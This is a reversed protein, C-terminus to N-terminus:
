EQLRGIPRRNAGDTNTLDDGLDLRAEVAFNELKRVIEPYQDIVNYREGPDRRLDYLGLEAQGQKYPGPWGDNGPLVDEYSRHEHPFVLKWDGIRVAELSNKRYYYLLNDRPNAHPDGKLLSLISVGDIKHGPLDTSTIEALTPLIDITSAMNNCIIGEPVIGPWKIICPVKQGGEFSTGKGERLGGTSGAHNGFNLWPGNDTTFIVITNEELGNTELAKLIEGVSWDIEMMVDGYMGQESKGAFKGSVGLPVHPMSHPVYLFFPQDKHNEIFEVARETYRTTLQDQGDLDHIEEIKENGEILPLPPHRFKHPVAASDTVPKGDYNVPWMDNSYPIGFYEDFGHQLPLFEKHHGLHWKGFIGTAYDKQKLLEAITVEDENIGVKAWPMFAGSVGIRNPYCGTLLAARSASCVAQASYFDTFRMGESAMEDLNPTTYGRAGYVGVDGYGQDDTFIIVINPLTDDKDHNESAQCAMLMYTILLFQFLPKFFKMRLKNLIM